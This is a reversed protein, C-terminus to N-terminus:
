AATSLAEAILVELAQFLAPGAAIIGPAESPGIPRVVAVGGAERVILSGASMDWANLPGEFYADLRGCAVACLDLAASGARRLDRVSGLLAAIVRAQWARHTADYGFGSGLLALSLRDQGTVHIRQGDRFAGGGLWATFTEGRAADHVVGAVVEGQVEVGISVAYAPFGYLYNTTGDLPDIVWRVGSEGERDTGEEGLIGDSPRAALVREVILAESARDVETVMDTLTSKTEVSERVHPARTALLEGAEFAIDTALHLLVAPDISRNSM